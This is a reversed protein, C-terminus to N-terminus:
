RDRRTSVAAPRPHCLEGPKFGLETAFIAASDPDHGVGQEDAVTRALRQAKFASQHVDRGMFLCLLLVLLGAALLHSPNAGELLAGALHRQQVLHAIQDLATGCHIFGIAHDFLLRMPYKRLLQAGQIDHVRGSVQCLRLRGPTRRKGIRRSELWVIAPAVSPRLEMNGLFGPHLAILVAPGDQMALM